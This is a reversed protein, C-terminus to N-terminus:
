QDFFDHFPEQRFNIDRAPNLAVAGEIDEPRLAVDPHSARLTVTEGAALDVHNDSFRTRGDPALVHVFRLYTKAAVTVALARDGRPEITVRPAAIEGRRLDKIPAFWHRNPAFAGDHARVTVVQDPGFRRIERAWVKASEGAGVGWAM